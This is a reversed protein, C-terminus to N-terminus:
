SCTCSFSVFFVFNVFVEALVTTFYNAILTSPVRSLWDM